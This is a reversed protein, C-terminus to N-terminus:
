SSKLRHPASVDKSLIKLDINQFLYHHVKYVSKLHLLEQGKLRKHYSSVMPKVELFPIM